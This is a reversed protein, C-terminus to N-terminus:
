RREATPREATPHEATPHEATPHEATPLEAIPHETIALQTLTELHEPRARKLPPPYHSTGSWFDRTASPRALGLGPSAPYILPRLRSSGKRRYELIKIM